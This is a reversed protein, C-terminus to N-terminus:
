KLSHQLGATIDLLRTTLVQQAKKIDFSVDRPRPAASKVSKMKRKELLSINYNLLNALTVGFNYRDVRESGGLHLTGTYDNNALEVLAAALNKVMIPTRYQDTFLPVCEQAELRRIIWDSFSSGNTIASGYILASRAIVYNDLADRIIAEARLKTKGYYNIPEPIDTETYYGSEGDFVMDSSVFILRSHNRKAWQALIEVSHTNVIDAQHKNEECYDLNTLAASQIICSPRVEDLLAYLLSKDTIDISYGKVGALECPHQFYLGVVEYEPLATVAIHGGLLGSVGSILLTQRDNERNKMHVDCIRSRGEAASSLPM